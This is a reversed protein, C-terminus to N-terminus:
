RESRLLILSVTTGLFIAVIPDQIICVVAVLLSLWFGTRDDHYLQIFHEREVMRIAVYTLMAAVVALPLYSFFQMILLSILAVSIGCIGQAVRHSAGSKVNLSTRALAATAPIGGMFGTVINAIGLGLMERREDHRTGTMHDAVKASILTEIIALCAVTFAPVIMSTRFCFTPLEWLLGRVQGFRMGLTELELPIMGQQAGYGLALGLPTILMIGPISPLLQSLAILIGLFVIFVTVAIWSTQPLHQLNNIVNDILREHLPLASLGLAFNLQNFAIVCAIGLIVGHITSAPVYMLYRELRLAYAILVFFGALIALMPINCSGEVIAYTAVLGSLAGTPGIINYNSGGFFSATLAAWIATIIGASLPAHSAIALSVSLPISVLGVTFGAKWNHKILEIVDM